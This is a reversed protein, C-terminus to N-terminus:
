RIARAQEPSCPLSGTGCAIWVPRDSASPAVPKLGFDELTAPIKRLVADDYSTIVTAGHLIRTWSVHEGVPHFVRARRDYRFVEHAFRGGELPTTRTAHLMNKPDRAYVNGDVTWTVPSDM